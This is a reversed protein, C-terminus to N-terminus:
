GGTELLEVDFVLTADAPIVDGAGIPGYGLHPPIVLRRQGGVKMGAVGEEWGPIVRGEGLVFSFPEARDRSSDFKMGNPLWGTYHVVVTDGSVAEEGEGERVDLIYLGSETVEMAGLDVGLESAYESAVPATGSATASGTEAAVTDPAADEPAAERDGCATLILALTLFVGSSRFKM